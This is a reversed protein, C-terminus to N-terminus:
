YHGICMSCDCGQESEVLKQHALYWAEWMRKDLEETYLRVFKYEQLQKFRPGNVIHDLTYEFSESLNKETDQNYMRINHALSELDSILTNVCEYLEQLEVTTNKSKILSYYYYKM